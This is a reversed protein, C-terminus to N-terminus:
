FFGRLVYLPMRVTSPQCSLLYFRRVSWSWRAIKGKKLVKDNRSKKIYYNTTKSADFCEHVIHQRYKVLILQYISSCLKPIEHRKPGSGEPCFVWLILRKSRFSSMFVEMLSETTYSLVLCVKPLLSNKYKYIILTISIYLLSSTRIVNNLDVM